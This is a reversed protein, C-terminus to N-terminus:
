YRHQYQYKAVLIRQKVKPVTEGTESSFVHLISPGSGHSNNRGLLTGLVVGAFM